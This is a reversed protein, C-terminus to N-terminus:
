SANKAIFEEGRSPREGAILFRVCLLGNVLSLRNVPISLTRYFFILIIFMKGRKAAAPTLGQVKHNYTTHEVVNSSSNAISKQCIFYIVKFNM